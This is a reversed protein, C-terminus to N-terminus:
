FEARFDEYNVGKLGLCLRYDTSAPLEEVDVSISNDNLIPTAVYVNKPTMNVSVKVIASKYSNLGNDMLNYLVDFQHPGPLVRVWFGSGAGKPDYPKGDIAKIAPLLNSGCLSRPVVTFVATDSLPHNADEYVIYPKAKLSCGTLVLLTTTAFCVRFM